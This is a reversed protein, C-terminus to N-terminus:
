IFLQSLLAQMRLKCIYGPWDSRYQAQTAEFKQLAVLLRLTAYLM